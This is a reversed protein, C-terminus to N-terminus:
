ETLPCKHDRSGTGTQGAAGANTHRAIRICSCIPRVWHGGHDRGDSTLHVARHAASSRAGRPPGRRWSWSLRRPFSDPHDSSPTPARSLEARGESPPSHQSSDLIQLCRRAQKRATEGHGLVLDDHLKRSRELNPATTNPTGDPIRWSPRVHTQDCAVQAPYRASCFRM